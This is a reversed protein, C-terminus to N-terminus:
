GDKEEKPKWRVKHEKVFMVILRECRLDVDDLSAMFANQLVKADDGDDYEIERLFKREQNAM